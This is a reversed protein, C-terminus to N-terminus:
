STSRNNSFKKLGLGLMLFTTITHSGGYSLFPLPIGIVPLLNFNMGINETVQFLLIYLFLNSLPTKLLLLVTFILFYSIIIIYFNYYNKSLLYAFFFDNNAEPFYLLKGSGISILANNVQMNDQNKFASIRDLRYYISTDFIDIFIDKQYFYLYLLTGVLILSISFFVTIEKKSFFKPLFFLFIIGYIIVAGTDPEIFTLISPILFILIFILKSLFNKNNLFFSVLVLSIKTIESPQISIKYLKLWGRSGNTYPHFLVVTLLIISVIYLLISIIKLHKEKLKSVLFLSILGLVFWILQKIQYDNKLYFVSLFELIFIPILIILNKKM